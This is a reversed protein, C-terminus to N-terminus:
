IACLRLVELTSRHPRFYRENRCQTVSMLRKRRVCFSLWVLRYWVSLTAAHYMSYMTICDYICFLLILVVSRDTAHQCRKGCPTLKVMFNNTCRALVVGPLHGQCCEVVNMDCYM